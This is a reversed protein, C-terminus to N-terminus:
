WRAANPGNPQARREQTQPPACISGPLGGFAPMPPFEQNFPNLDSPASHAPHAAGFIPAATGKLKSVVSM